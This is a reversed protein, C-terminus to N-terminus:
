EQSNIIIILKSIDLDEIEQQYVERRSPYEKGPVETIEEITIRYM